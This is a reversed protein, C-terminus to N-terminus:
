VCLQLYLILINLVGDEFCESGVKRRRAFELFEKASELVQIPITQSAPRLLLHESLLQHTAIVAVEKKYANQCGNLQGEIDM